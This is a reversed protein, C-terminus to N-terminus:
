RWCLLINLTHTFGSNRSHKCNLKHYMLIAEIIWISVCVWKVSQLDLMWSNYFLGGLIMDNGFPWFSFSIWIYRAGFHLPRQEGWADLDPLAPVTWIAPVTQFVLVYRKVSLASGAPQCVEANPMEGKLKERLDRLLVHVNKRQLPSTNKINIIM